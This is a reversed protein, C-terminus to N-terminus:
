RVSIFLYFRQSLHRNSPLKPLKEATHHDKPKMIELEKGVLVNDRRLIM